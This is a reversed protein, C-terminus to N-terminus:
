PKRLRFFANGSIPLVAQNLPGIVTIEASVETWPGAPTPATELLFGAANAPWRVFINGGVRIALVRPFVATVLSAGNNGPAPDPPLASVTVHNTVYGIGNLFGSVTALVSAGADLSPIDLTVVGAGPTVVGASANAVAFTFGPPLTDVVHVGLATGPGHNAVNIAYTVLEGSQADSPGSVTVAVDASSVVPAATQIDLSWGGAISGSDGAADDFVFLQWTGNPNSGAFAGLSAAYPGAPAPAPLSDAPAFDTPRVTGSVIQGAYPLGTAAGDDFTLTVGNLAFGAGADSMLLAKQGAPGVLLVDVDEPFTHNLQNLTVTVKSVTGTVGAVEITAPYNVAPGNDPITIASSNAVTTGGSLQFAYAVTGLSVLDDNLQLMVTIVSGAAATATFTLPRAVVSGSAPVVGFNWANNTLSPSVGATPILQAVLSTTDLNGVNRLGFNVTVLEGADISGNAPVNGEAVLAVGAPIIQPALPNIVNVVQATNNAPVPDAAQVDFAVFRNTFVGAVGPVALFAATASGGPPLLGFSCYVVSGTAATWGQSNTGGVFSWGAPLANTVRVFTARNPGANSVAVRFAVNSGIFTQGPFTDVVLSVDAQASSVPYVNVATNNAPDLESEAQWATVRNTLLTPSNPHATVSVLAGQGTALGPITVVYGSPNLAVTGLTTTVSEVAALVHNSLVVATANSPGLNAVSISYVFPEGSTLTGGPPNITVALNAVPGVPVVTRIDLTWGGGIAGSDPASDDMVYLSWTGNPDSGNFLGLSNGYPGAPAPAFLVDGAEYDTPRFTGASIATGDPLFGAAAPDFVLTRNTVGDGGGADSMLMVKQGSPSVLLVDVDDPFSHTFKTLTVTVKSIMGPLGSVNVTSPYPSAGGFENIIIPATNAFTGAASLGFTFAATGLGQAGQRLQLSAVVSAGPAGNATFTLARTATGGPAIFGFNATGNTPSPVVGGTPQLTADLSTVPINGINRLTFNVTVTEGAEIAGTTPVFGEAVLAASDPVIAVHGNDVPVTLQLVNNSTVVDGNLSGVGFNATVPGNVGPQVVIVASAGAGSPLTGMDCSVVGNAFTCAGVASTASLFTVGAPLPNTLVVGFAPNPHVNTVALTYTLPAGVVGPVPAAGGTLVLDTGGCFGGGDVCESQSISLTWCEIHGANTTVGDIVRLGWAGNAAAGSKGKFAALAQDPRFTGVFPPAAFTIANPSHDDFTVRQALTSCDVGFNAGFFGRNRALDVATGDPGVLQLVLEGAAPHTVYASVTVKGIANDLGGVNVWSVAGNTDGDPVPVSASSNALAPTLNVIGSDLIVVNTNAAFRNTIIVALHVPTGCVFDPTTSIRFPAPNTFLSNTAFPPIVFSAPSIFVGPNTVTLLVTSLVANSVNDSRVVVTFDICENPDAVGNANADTFLNTVYALTPVPSAALSQMAMVIGYGSDRDIGAAEIDLANTVLLDRIQTTTLAPNYSRILAAIAGAHPAAASTGFFPDFGPVTTMGGDAAAIDPKRRLAGGTALFNTPTIPTGDAHYFVRRFGDSSFDEVPNAAGGTFANPYATAVNVAAVCFANTAVAHGKTNGSTSVSLLPGHTDVHLFRATGSMRVILLNEGAFPPPLFEYPDQTGTQATTSSALIRQGAADLLYFDYDNTSQGLPDSWFLSVEVAGFDLVQNLAVNGWSHFPVTFANSITVMGGNVFDGEWTGSTGDNKNGSNGASSFYLAGDATVANVAQAIIGDQFPGEAFYYVDDIIVDCGAARLALINTAFQAESGFASAFYLGAGPALDHVIELMATGEGSGPLGDQGPLVVVNAPLDGLIQSINLFDVSDSLVGVKVGAGTVGFAARAAAVRHTIDGESNISGVNTKAKAATRVHKVDARGALGEIQGLPVKARIAKFMAVSNVVQGGVTQIYALLAPTVVANIDVLVRGNQDASVTTRLPGVGPAIQEGRSQKVAFVLQSDMKIQAPTRAAKENVLAAIQARVEASVQPEAAFGASAAIVVTIAMCVARRLDRIIGGCGPIGEAAVVTACSSLTRKM